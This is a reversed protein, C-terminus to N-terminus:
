MTTAWGQSSVESRPALAAASSPMMTGMSTPGIALIVATALCCPISMRGSHARRRAECHPPRLLLLQASGGIWPRAESSPSGVYRHASAHGGPCHTQARRPADTVYEDHVNRGM